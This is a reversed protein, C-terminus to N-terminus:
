SGTQKGYEWPGLRTPKKLSHNLRYLFDNRSIEYAGLQSLYPNMIQCDILDFELQILHSTLFFFGIKSADAVLSFMSEGCFTGGIAIGYLGGVLRGQDYVEVSHAYGKQHLSLYAEQMEKLIWTGKQGARPIEACAKIVWAFQTDYRIEFSCKALTKRFTRGVHVQGPELVARVPPSWWLIPLGEEYWPFIGQSYALLLREPSLDGGVALLGNPRSSSPPPFFLESGLQFVM